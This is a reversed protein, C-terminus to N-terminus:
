RGEEWVEVDGVKDGKRRCHRHSTATQRDSRSPNDGAVLRFVCVLPQLGHRQGNVGLHTATIVTSRKVADRTLPKLQANIKMSKFSCKKKWFFHKNKLKHNALPILHKHQLSDNALLILHRHQLTDNALLILHRHQLTDNALLILHRHQLTDNALLILHRHQLTDNALLILHRHQLTDNALLILHRHQLTDNALLILHRHQLTDNAM